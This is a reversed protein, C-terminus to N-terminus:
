LFAMHSSNLGRREAVVLGQDEQVTGLRWLSPLRAKDLVCLTCDTCKTRGRVPPSPSSWLGSCPNCPFSLHVLGRNAFWPAPFEGEPGGMPKTTRGGFDRWLAKWSLFSQCLEYHGPFVTCAPHETVNIIDVIWWLSDNTIWLTKKYVMWFYYYHIIICWQILCFM